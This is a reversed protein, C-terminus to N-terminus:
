GLATIPPLPERAREPAPFSYFAAANGGLML